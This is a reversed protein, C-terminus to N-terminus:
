ALLEDAIDKLVRNVYFMDPDQKTARTRIQFNPHEPNTTDFLILGIGFIMCLSDLRSIDEERANQPIVIFAKHSFLRYSCAQGFATILGTDDVKIEASIIEEPFSLIDSPRPKLVGVVDPTGWKDKFKNGGIPIAKTCDELEKVLFDAFAAYFEEEHIKVNQTQQETPVPAEQDKFKALLFVGRAPKIIEPVRTEINWISGHITNSPIEPLAESLKQHVETYRLGQPADALIKLMEKAIKERSTM